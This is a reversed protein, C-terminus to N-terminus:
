RKDLSTIGDAISAFVRAPPTKANQSLVVVTYQPNDYPFFGCFWSNNVKKGKQKIGTQATGTKGAANCLEPKGNEGTGGEELVSALDEKIRNATYQTMIRVAASIPYEETLKLKEVLGEVLTPPRYTGDSAIASYINCLVLPSVM